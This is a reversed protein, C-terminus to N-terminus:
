TAQTPPRGQTNNGVFCEVRQAFLSEWSGTWTTSGDPRHFRLRLDENSYDCETEEEILRYLIMELMEGDLEEGPIGITSRFGNRGDLFTFPMMLIRAVNEETLPGRCTPCSTGGISQWQHLCPFCFLRGCINGEDGSHFCLNVTLQGLCIPCTPDDVTWTDEIVYMLPADDESSVRTSSTFVFILLSFDFLHTMNPM